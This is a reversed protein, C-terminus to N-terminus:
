VEEALKDQRYLDAYLKEAAMLEDHTGDEVITGQDFVLIRDVGRLTATRHTIIISTM